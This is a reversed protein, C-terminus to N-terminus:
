PMIFPQAGLCAHLINKIIQRYELFRQIQGDQKGYRYVVRPSPKDKKPSVRLTSSEKICQMPLWRLIGRNKSLLSVWAVIHMNESWSVKRDFVIHYCNESSKLIIFGGLKFQKMAKLAWYKATRFSVEDLDLKVTGTDSYGLIPRGQSSKETLGRDKLVM